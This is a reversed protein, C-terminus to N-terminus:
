SLKVLDDRASIILLIRRESVNVAMTQISNQGIKVNKLNHGYKYELRFTKPSIWGSSIKCSALEDAHDNALPQDM